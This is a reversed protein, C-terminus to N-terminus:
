VPETPRTPTCPWRRWRSDHRQRYGNIGQLNVRQEALLGANADLIHAAAALTYKGGYSEGTLFLPRARFGPDLAM